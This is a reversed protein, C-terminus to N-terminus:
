LKNVERILDWNKGKKKWPEEGPQDEEGTLVAARVGENAGWMIFVHPCAGDKAAQFLTEDILGFMQKSEMNHIRMKYVLLTYLENESEKLM